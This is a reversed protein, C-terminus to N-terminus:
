MHTHLYYLLSYYGTTRTDNENKSGEKVQKSALKTLRKLCVCVQLIHQLSISEYM